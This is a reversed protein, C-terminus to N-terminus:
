TEDVVWSWENKKKNWTKISKGEYHDGNKLSYKEIFAPSLFCDEIFGFKNDGNIRVKGNIPRVYQNLLSTNDIALPLTVPSSQGTKNKALKVSYTSYPVVVDAFEGKLVGDSSGDSSVSGEVLYGAIQKRSDKWIVIISSAKIDSYVLADAKASYKKYIPTNDTSSNNKAYWRELQWDKVKQSIKWENKERVAVIQNIEYKAASYETAWIFYPIVKERLGVLYEDKSKCLLGRCYFAMKDEILTYADGLDEWAWFQSKKEKVVQALIKQAEEFHKLGILCMAKRRHFWLENDTNTYSNLASLAKECVLFCNDYKGIELLLKSYESCYKEFVSLYVVTSGDKAESSGAVKSLLASNILGYLNVIKNKDYNKEQLIKCAQLITFSYCDVKDNAEQEILKPIYLASRYVKDLDSTNNEIGIRYICWALYRNDWLGLEVQENKMAYYLDYAEQYKKEKYFDAAVKSRPDNNYPAM